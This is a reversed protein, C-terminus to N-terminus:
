LKEISIVDRMETGVLPMSGDKKPKRFEYDFEASRWNTTITVVYLEETQQQDPKGYSRVKSVVRVKDGRQFPATAKYANTLDGIAKNIASLQENLAKKQALYEETTM